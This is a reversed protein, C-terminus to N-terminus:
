VCLCCLTCAFSWCAQRAQLHGWLGAPAPGGRRQHQLQVPQKSRSFTLSKTCRQDQWKQQWTQQAGLKHEKMTAVPKLWFPSPVGRLGGQERVEACAHWRSLCYSDTLPCWVWSIFFSLDVNSSFKPQIQTPPRPDKNQIFTSHLCGSNIRDTSDLLFSDVLFPPTIYKLIGINVDLYLHGPLQALRDQPLCLAIRQATRRM